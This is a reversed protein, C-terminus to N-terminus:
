LARQYGGRSGVIIPSALSPKRTLHEPRPALATVSDKRAPERVQSRTIPSAIHGDSLLGDVIVM